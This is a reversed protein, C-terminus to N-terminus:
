VPEGEPERYMRQANTQGEQGILIDQWSTRRGLHVVLSLGHDLALLRARRKMNGSLSKTM